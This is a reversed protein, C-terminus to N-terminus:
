EEMKDKRFFGAVFYVLYPIMIGFVLFGWTLGSEGYRRHLADVPWLYAWVAYATVGVILLM